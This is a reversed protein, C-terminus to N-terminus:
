IQCQITRLTPLLWGVRRFASASRALTCAPPTRLYYEREYDEPRQAYRGTSPDRFMVVTQKAAYSCTYEFSSALIEEVDDGDLDIMGIDYTYRVNLVTSLSAFSSQASMDKFLANVSVALAVVAAVALM